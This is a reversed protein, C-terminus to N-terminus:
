PLPLLSLALLCLSRLLRVRRGDPDTTPFFFEVGRCRSHQQVRRRRRRPGGGTRAGTGFRQRAFTKCARGRWVVMVVVMMSYVAEQVSVGEAGGRGRREGGRRVHQGGRFRGDDLFCVTYHVHSARRRHGYARRTAAGSTGCYTSRVKKYQRQKAM